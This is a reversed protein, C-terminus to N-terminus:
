QINMKAKKARAEKIKKIEDGLEQLQQSIRDEDDLRENYEDKLTEYEQSLEILGNYSLKYKFDTQFIDFDEVMKQLDMMENVEDDNRTEDRLLRKRTRERMEDYLIKQFDNNTYYTTVIFSFFIAITALIGGLMKLLDFVEYQVIDTV